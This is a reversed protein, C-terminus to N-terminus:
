EKPPLADWPCARLDVEPAAWAEGVLQAALEVSDPGVFLRITFGDDFLTVCRDSGLSSRLLRLSPPAPLM